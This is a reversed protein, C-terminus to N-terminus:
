VSDFQKYPIISDHGDSWQINVAYNGMVTISTPILDDPVSDDKLVKVGTFENICHACRCGRRLVAPNVFKDSDQFVYHIGQGAVFEVTPVTSEGHIIRSVSRVISEGIANYVEVIPHEDNEQTVIPFGSDGCQTIAPDIPIEFAEEIGFQEVIKRKAGKGFIYYKTDHDDPKFYSMNEVVAVVPVNMKDFMQIGKEVDIFSIKQPTTVMVSATIPIIQSLTLQIDGTGPPMDIILYDLEGWATGTLLQKIANTVMPGRMIAPGKSPNAYAFSMLKMGTPHDVPSIMGTGQDQFLGEFPADVMTPLSPGFIDADFIGIKAGQKQLTFALNTAVTSKGVGGKCSGGAIIAQVQSLGNPKDDQPKKEQASLNVEVTKVWDLEM